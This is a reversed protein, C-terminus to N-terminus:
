PHSPVYLPAHWTFKRSPSVIFFVVGMAVATAKKRQEKKRKGKAKEEPNAAAPSSAGTAGTLGTIGAAGSSDM